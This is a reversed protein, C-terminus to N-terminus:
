KESDIGEGARPVGADRQVPRRLPPDAARLEAGREPPRQAPIMTEFAEGPFHERVEQVVQACLNTRADYM